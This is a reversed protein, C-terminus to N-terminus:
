LCAKTILATIQRTNAPVSAYTMQPRPRTAGAVSSALGTIALPGLTGPCGGALVAGGDPADADSVGTCSEGCRMCAMPTFGASTSIRLTLLSSRTGPLTSM